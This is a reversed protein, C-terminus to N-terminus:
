RTWRALRIALWRCLIQLVLPILVPKDGQKM